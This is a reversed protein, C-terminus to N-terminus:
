NTTLVLVLQATVYFFSNKFLKDASRPKGKQFVKEPEREEM